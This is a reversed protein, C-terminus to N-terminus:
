PSKGSILRCATPTSNSQIHKIKERFIPVQKDTMPVAQIPQNGIKIHIEEFTVSKQPCSKYRTSFNHSQYTEMSLPIKYQKLFQSNLFFMEILKLKTPIQSIHFKNCKVM